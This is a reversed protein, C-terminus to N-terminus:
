SKPAKAAYSTDTALGEQIKRWVDDSPEQPQLLQKAQEAIYELDRILASCKECTKLHGALEPDEIYGSAGAAFLEPLKEQFDACSLSNPRNSDKLTM